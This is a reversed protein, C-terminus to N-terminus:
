EDAQTSSLHGGHADVAGGRQDRYVILIADDDQPDLDPHHNLDIRGAALDRDDFYAYRTSGHSGIRLDAGVAVDPVTGLDLQSADFTVAGPGDGVELVHWAGDNTLGQSFLAEFDRGQVDTMTVWVPGDTTDDHDTAVHHLDLAELAFAEVAEGLSIDAPSSWVAQEGLEFQTQEEVEVDPAVDPAELNLSHVSGGAADRLVLRFEEELPRDLVAVFLSGPLHDADTTEFRHEGDPLEWTVHDVDLPSWGVMGTAHETESRFWAVRDRELHNELSTCSGGGSTPEGRESDIDLSLCVAQGDFGADSRVRIEASYSVGADTEGEGFAQSSEPIPQEPPTDIIQLEPEESAVVQALGIGVVALLGVVGAAGAIRGARRQRRARQWLGEFDPEGHPQPAAERLLERTDETM